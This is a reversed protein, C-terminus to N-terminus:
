GPGRSKEKEAKAVFSAWSETSIETLPVCKEPPYKPGEGIPGIYNVCRAGEVMGLDYLDRVFRSADPM